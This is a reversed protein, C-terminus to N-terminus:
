PRGAVIRPGGDWNPPDPHRTRWWALYCEDSCFSLTESLDTPSIRVTWKSVDSCEHCTGEASGARPENPGDWPIRGYYGRGGLGNAMIPPFSERQESLYALVQGVLRRVREPDLRFDSLRNHFIERAERAFPQRTPALSSGHFWDCYTWFPNHTTIGRLACNAALERSGEREPDHYSGWHINFICNGCCDSGGDPM